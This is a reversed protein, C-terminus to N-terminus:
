MDGLSKIFQQMVQYYERLQQCSVRYQLFETEVLFAWYDTLQKQLYSTPQRVSFRPAKELWINRIGLAHNVGYGRADENILISRNGQSLNYIHAHVRFGIHLDCNDYLRFGDASGSIDTCVIRFRKAWKPTTEGAYSPHIGRHMLLVIDADPFQSRVWGALQEMLCLNESYAPDSLYIKRIHPIEKPRLSDIYSPHYWAPCGTMCLSNFGIGRLMQVTYWDRCSLPRDNRAIYSIFEQMKVTFRYDKYLTKLRTDRGKWGWGLIVAPTTLLSMDTVFPMRDPYLAPQFGPGGGFVLLDYSNLLELKGDYSVNRKLIDVRVDPLNAELLERSRKEILFDGANVYAGSMLAIKM